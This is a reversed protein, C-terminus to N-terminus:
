RPGYLWRMEALLSITGSNPASPFVPLSCSTLIASLQGRKVLLRDTWPPSQPEGARRTQGQRPTTPQPKFPLLPSSLCIGAMWLPKSGLGAGGLMQFSSFPHVQDSAGPSCLQQQQGASFPAGPGLGQESALAGVWQAELGEGGPGALDKVPSSSAQSRAPHPLPQQRSVGGM